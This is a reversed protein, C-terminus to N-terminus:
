RRGGVKMGPSYRSTFFVLFICPETTKRFWRTKSFTTDHEIMDMLWTPPKMLAIVTLVRRDSIMFEDQIVLLSGKEKRSRKRDKYNKNYLNKNKSEMLYIANM